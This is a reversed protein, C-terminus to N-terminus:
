EIFWGVFFSKGSGMNGYILDISWLLIDVDLIVM